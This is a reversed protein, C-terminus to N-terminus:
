DEGDPCCARTIVGRVGWKYITFSPNVPIYPELIYVTSVKSGGLDLKYGRDINRAFNLFFIVTKM